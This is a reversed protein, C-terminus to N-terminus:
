SSRLMARHHRIFPLHRPEVRALRLAPTIGLLMADSRSLEPSIVIAGDDEFAILCADVAADLAPSLFLGNFPDLRESNSSDRWPKLHSAKLLLTQQCGTVSCRGRWMEILLARFVGQGVRARQLALSETVPVAALERSALALDSVVDGKGPNALQLILAQLGNWQEDTLDEVRTTLSIGHQVEDWSKQSHLGLASLESTFGAVAAVDDEYRAPDTWVFLRNWSRVSFFARHASNTIMMAPEAAMSVKHRDVGSAWSLLALVRSRLPEQQPDYADMLFPVTWRRDGDRTKPM